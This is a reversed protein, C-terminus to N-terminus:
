RPPSAAAAAFAAVLADRHERDDAQVSFLWPSDIRGWVVAHVTVGVGPGAADVIEQQLWFLDGDRGAEEVQQGAAMVAVVQGGTWNPPFFDNLTLDLADVRFLSGKVYTRRPDEGYGANSRGPSRRDFQPTRQHGAIESPLREFLSTVESVNGPLAVAALGSPAAATPFDRVDPPPIPGVRDPTDPRGGPAIAQDFAAVNVALAIFLSVTLRMAM